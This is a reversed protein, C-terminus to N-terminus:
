DTGFFISEDTNHEALAARLADDLSMPGGKPAASSGAARSGGAIPPQNRKRQLAEQNRQKIRAEREDAARMKLLAAELDPIEHDIAFQLLQTEDIEGYQESLDAIEAQVQSRVAADRQQEIFAEAESLRQALPDDDVEEENEAGQTLHQQLLALTQEPNEDLAKYLAEAAALRQREAAVEQTKRTYDSQRLYGNRVEDYTLEVTKGDVEFEFKPEDNSETGPAGGETETSTDGEPATETGVPVDEATVEDGLEDPM